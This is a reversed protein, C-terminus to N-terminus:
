ITIIVKGRAHGGELYAIAEAARMLPILILASSPIRVRSGWRPLNAFPVIRVQPVAGFNARSCPKQGSM